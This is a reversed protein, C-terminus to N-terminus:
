HDAKWFPHSVGGAADFRRIDEPAILGTSGDYYVVVAKGGHRYAIKGDTSKGEKPSTKWVLRGSYKAIWDTATIFAATRSPNSIQNVRFGKSANPGSGPM